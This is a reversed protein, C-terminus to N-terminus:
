MLSRQGLSLALFQMLWPGRCRVESQSWWWTGVSANNSVKTNSIDLKSCCQPKPSRSHYRRGEGAVYGFWNPGRSKRCRNPALLKSGLSLTPPKIASQPAEERPGLPSGMGLFMEEFVSREGSGVAGSATLNLFLTKNLLGSPLGGLLIVASVPSPRRRRSPTSLLASSCVPM